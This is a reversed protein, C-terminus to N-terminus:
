YFLYKSNSYSGYLVGKWAIDIVYPVPNVMVIIQNAIQGSRGLVCDNFCAILVRGVTYSFASHTCVQETTSNDYITM